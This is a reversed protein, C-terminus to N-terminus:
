DSLRFIVKPQRTIEFRFKNWSIARKFGQKITELFKANDNVSLTVVPVYLKAINIQFIAGTTATVLEYDFPNTHPDVARFTKSVKTIIYSKKWKLDLEIECNILLM